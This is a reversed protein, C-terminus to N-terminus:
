RCVRPTSAKPFIEALKDEKEKIEKLLGDHKKRVEELKEGLGKLEVGCVIQNRAVDYFAPNLIKRGQEKLLGEYDAKSPALFITTQQASEVTPPLFRAYAAYIEELQVATRRVVDESANSELVFHTSEFRLGKGDKGWQIPKLILNAMRQAEGQGTPDLAKLRKALVEREEDTLLDYDAVEASALTTNFVVTHSGPKRTVCTFHIETAKKSVLMGKLVRGNQLYLVDFKWEEDARPCPVSCFCSSGPELVCWPPGFPM